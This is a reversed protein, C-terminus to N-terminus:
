ADYDLVVGETLPVAQCTLVYGQAVETESLGYNVKMQVEGSVLKARCTACVGAKCAYPASLGAARANELISGKDPDFDILRRRGDLTVQVKLGAARQELAHAAERQAESIPGATFREVLVKAPAVGAAHLAREASEMMAGPGCIFAADITKPDVLGRLISAMRDADIRGNFLEVDDAEATLFHFLQLRHMHRNKLEALEELFMISNAHRNGYLLVFRSELETALGTKLISLIPTIGSGGAIALYTQRTGASFEWSFTGHPAMADVTAGPELAQTAWNSFLGGPVRKIAVRLRNEGPATCISYNRRVDEGALETRLTLHQGPLFAFSAVDAAPPAFTVCVADDTERCVELVKLAHFGSSM